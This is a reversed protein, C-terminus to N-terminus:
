GRSPTGPHMGVGSATVQRQPATGHTAGQAHSVDVTRLHGAHQAGDGRRTLVHWGSLHSYRCGTSRDPSVSLPCVSM